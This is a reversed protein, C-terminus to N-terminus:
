NPFESAPISITAANGGVIPYLTATWYDGGSYTLSQDFRSIEDITNFQNMGSNWDKGSMYVLVYVGNPIDSIKFTDGARIYVKLLATQLDDPSTISLVTDSNIKNDAELIGSGKGLSRKLITGTKLQVPTSVITPTVIPGNRWEDSLTMLQNTTIILSLGSGLPIINNRWDDAAKMLDDTEVTNINQGLGRYYSVMDTSAANVNGILIMTSIIAVIVYIIISINKVKKM